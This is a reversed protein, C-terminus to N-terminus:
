LKSKIWASLDASLGKWAASKQTVDVVFVCDNADILRVLNDRIQVAMLNSKVLWLSELPKAWDPYSRLHEHVPNYNRGPQRLDYSVLYTNM